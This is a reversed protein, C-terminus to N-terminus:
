HKACRAIFGDLPQLVHAWSFESTVRARGCEGMDRARAADTLLSIAADAIAQPSNPDVLLGTQGDVVADRVGGSDGAIVPRGAAAAELFVIGFGEVNGEDVIERCALVFVDCAEYVLPLEGDSLEGLWFVRDAIGLDGAMAQLHARCPGDGVVVYAVNPVKRIVEPLARLVADHGKRAVLRSLSMLIKRGVLGLRQRLKDGGAPHAFSEVDVGPWVVDVRDAPLDAFRLLRDRMPRSVAFVRCAAGFAKGYLTRMWANREHRAFELGYAFVAYPLRRGFVQLAKFMLGGYGVNMAIAVDAPPERLLAVFMPLGRLFGWDYGPTRIESWAWSDVSPSANSPPAGGDGGGIRPAIVRVQHGGDALHRVVHDSLRSIGGRLPPFDTTVM